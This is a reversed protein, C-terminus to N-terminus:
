TTPGSTSTLSSPPGPTGTSGNTPDATVLQIEVDYCHLWLANLDYDPFQEHLRRFAVVRFPDDQIYQMVPIGEAQRIVHALRSSPLIAAEDQDVQVRTPLPDTM